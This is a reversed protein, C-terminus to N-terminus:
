SINGAKATAQEGFYVEPASYAYTGRLKSLTSINFEVVFRSVGFDSIYANDNEDVLV